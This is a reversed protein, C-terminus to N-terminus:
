SAVEEGAAYRNTPRPLGLRARFTCPTSEAPEARLRPLVDAALRDLDEPLRAPRFLVGDFGVARIGDVLSLADGAEGVLDIGEPAARAIADLQERERRATARDDALLVDVVVLARIEERSRGHAAASRLVCRRALLAEDLSPAGVLVLDAHRAALEAFPDRQSRVGVAVVPQGQPPRPTISPGRVSFHEGVFDITHLRERDVYRGTTRDRVVADDEWSDWLRRVVEVVDVAEAVLEDAPAAAKRGVLDAEAQTMAVTPRWGGRGGSVLDLTAINKSVHFPETHTVPVTPLLAVRTTAPAVRAAVLVADLRARVAGRADVEGWRDDVAVVDVGAHEARAVLAVLAEPLLSTSAPRGATSEISGAGPHSGTGDLAVGLVLPDIRIM